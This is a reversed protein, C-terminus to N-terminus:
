RPSGVFEPLGTSGVSESVEVIVNKHTVEYDCINPAHENAQYCDIPNLSVFTTARSDEIDVTITDGTQPMPLVLTGNVHESSEVSIQWLWKCSDTCFLIARELTGKVEILATDQFRGEFPLAELARIEEKAQKDRILWSGIPLGILLTFAIIMLFIRTKKTTKSIPTDM